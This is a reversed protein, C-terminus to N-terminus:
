KVCLAIYIGITRSTSFDWRVSCIFSHIGVQKRFRLWLLASDPCVRRIGNGEGDCKLEETQGEWERQARFLFNEKWKGM